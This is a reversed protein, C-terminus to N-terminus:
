LRFIRKVVSNFRSFFFYMSMGFLVGGLSFAGLILPLGANSITERTCIYFLVGSPIGWGVVGYFFVFKYPGLVAPSFRELNKMFIQNM